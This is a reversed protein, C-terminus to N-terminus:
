KYKDGFKIEHVISKSLQNNCPLIHDRGLVVVVVVVHIETKFIPTAHGRVSLMNLAHVSHGTKLVCFPM